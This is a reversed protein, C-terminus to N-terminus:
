QYFSSIEIGLDKLSTNNKPVTTKSLEVEVKPGIVASMENADFSVKELSLEPIYGQYRGAKGFSLIGIKNSTITTSVCEVRSADKVALGIHNWKLTVKELSVVSDSGVSIGKDQSGESLITNGKLKTSGLDLGDNRNRLFRSNALFAHCYDLDLGDNCNEFWSNEIWIECFKANMGDESPCDFVKLHDVRINECAYVNFAGEIREQKSEVGAGGSVSVHSILGDDVDAANIVIAGWPEGELKPMFRIPNTLTGQLRLRGYIRVSVGQGLKINAGSDVKLYQHELINVDEVLDVDGSWTIVDLPEKKQFVQLPEFAQWQLDENRSKFIEKTECPEGSYFWSLKPWLADTNDSECEIVFGGAQYEWQQEHVTHDVLGFNESKGKLLPIAGM